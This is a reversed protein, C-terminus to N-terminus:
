PLDLPFAVPVGSGEKALGEEKRRAARTHLPDQGQKNSVTSEDKIAQVVLGFTKPRGSNYVLRGCDLVVDDLVKVLKHQMYGTAATGTATDILSDRSPLMHLLFEHPELGVGYNGLVFGYRLPHQRVLSVLKATYNSDAPGQFNALLPNLTTVRGGPILPPIFGGVGCASVQQMGLCGRLRGIDLVSGKAGSDVCAELNTARPLVSEAYKHVLERHYAWDPGIQGLQALQRRNLPEFDKLSLTFGVASLWGVCHKAIYDVMHLRDQPALVGLISHLVQKTALGSLWVGQFIQVKDTMFTLTAPLCASLMSLTDYGTHVDQVRAIQRVLRARSRAELAEQPFLREPVPQPTRSMLYCALVSDQVINIMPLGTSPSVTTVRVHAKERMEELALTSQVAHINLEDGDFDANLRTTVGLPIKITFDKHVVVDMAILSGSHLTPQRNVLVTDGNQLPRDVIDGCRLEFPEVRARNVQIQQGGADTVVDTPGLQERGTAVKYPLGEAPCVRWESQLLGQPRFKFKRVNYELGARWVTAISGTDCAQQLTPLNAPTVVEPQTLTQCITEPMGVQTCLLDAGPTTVARATQNCRRGMCHNRFCGGKGAMRDVFSQVNRGSSPHRVNKDRNDFITTVAYVVKRAWREWQPSGRPHAKLRATSKVIEGYLSTIDDDCKQSGQVMSPRNLHPLVPLVPMIMNAPHAATSDGGTIDEFVAGTIMALQQRLEDLYRFTRKGGVIAVMGLDEAIWSTPPRGCRGCSVKKCRGTLISLYTESRNPRFPPRKGWPLLPKGCDICVLHLLTLLRARFLPNVVPYALEIHGFHGPCAGIDAFCVKCLTHHTLPGMREDYLNALGTKLCNTIEVVSTRRIDEPSAVGFTLSTL